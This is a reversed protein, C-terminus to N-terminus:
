LHIINLCGRHIESEWGRVLRFVTVGAVVLEVLSDTITSMVKYMRVRNQHLRVVMQHIM